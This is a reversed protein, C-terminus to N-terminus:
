IRYSSMRCQNRQRSHKVCVQYWTRLLTSFRQPTTNHGYLKYREVLNSSDARVSTTSSTSPYFSRHKVRKSGCEWIHPCFVRSTLVKDGFRSQPGLLTLTFFVRVVCWGGGRRKQPKPRRQVTVTVSTVSTVVTAM